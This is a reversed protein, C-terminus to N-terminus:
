RAPSAQGLLARGRPGGFVMGGWGAWRGLLFRWALRVETAARRRALSRAGQAAVRATEWALAGLSARVWGAYSGSWRLADVHQQSKGLGYQMALLYRLSTRAPPVVHRLVLDPSYWLAHGAGHLRLTIEMDGGSVLRRGVRDGLYQRRTWGSADLAARRVVLGAGVLYTVPRATEGRDQEAFAYGYRRMWGPPEEEWDLVVRGGFAGSAPHSAAFATARRVWDPALLCDDDVFAIWDGDTERVGRLRAPTLGQEPEPVRRLGPVAGGERHRDVVAATDDTCNNDVVLVSWRAEAPAEQASLAALARDLLRANDYTCIVVDLTM